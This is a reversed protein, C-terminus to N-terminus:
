KEVVRSDSMQGQMEEIARRVKRRFCAQNPWSIEGKNGRALLAVGTHFREPASVYILKSLNLKKALFPLSSALSLDTESLNKAPLGYPKNVAVLGHPDQHCLTILLCYPPSYDDIMMVREPDHYVINEFLLDALEENSSWREKVFCPSKTPAKSFRSLTYSHRIFHHSLAQM